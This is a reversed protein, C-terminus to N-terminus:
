LSKETSARLKAIEERSLERWEGPSLRKLEVPGVRVRILRNVNNGVAEFMRRIQRNKGERIVLRYIPKDKGPVREVRCPLTRLGDLLVGGRLSELEASTLEREATVRYEKEVHRSPHTLANVLDGDTSLLLLGESTYDLRGAYVLRDAVLAYDVPLEDFVTRRGRDDGRSVLIGRKKYTALTVEREELVVPTGDVTVVDREPDIQSALNVTVEGNVCVRGARIIEESKRRSTVGARALYRAIRYTESSM